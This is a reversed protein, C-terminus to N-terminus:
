CLKRMESLLTQKTQIPSVRTTKKEWADWLCGTLLLFSTTHYVGWRAWVILTTNKKQWKHKKDCHFFGWFLASPVTEWSLMMSGGRNVHILIWAIPSVGHHLPINNPRVLNKNKLMQLERLIISRVLFLVLIAQSGGPTWQTLTTSQLFSEIVYSPQLFPFLTASYM